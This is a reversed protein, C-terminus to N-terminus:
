QELSCKPDVLDLAFAMSRCNACIRKDDATSGSKPIQILMFWSDQEPAWIQPLSLKLYSHASIIVTQFLGLWHRHMLVQFMVIVTWAMWPASLRTYGNDMFIPSPWPIIGTQHRRPLGNVNEIGSTAGPSAKWMPWVVLKRQYWQAQCRLTREVIVTWQYRAIGISVRLSGNSFIWWSVSRLLIPWVM